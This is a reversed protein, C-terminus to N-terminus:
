FNTIMAILSIIILKFIEKFKKRLFRDRDWGPQEEAHRSQALHKIPIITGGIANMQSAIQVFTLQSCPSYSQQM